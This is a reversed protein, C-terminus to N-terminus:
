KFKINKIMNVFTWARSFHNIAKSVMAVGGRPQESERSGATKPAEINLKNQLM